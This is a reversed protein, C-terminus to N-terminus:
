KFNVSESKTKQKEDFSRRLFQVLHWLAAAVILCVALLSGIKIVVWEITTFLDSSLWVALHPLFM